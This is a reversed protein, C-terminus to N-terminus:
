RRPSRYNNSFEEKLVLFQHIRLEKWQLLRETELLSIHLIMHPIAKNICFITVLNIFKIKYTINLLRINTGWFILCLIVMNDVMYSWKKTYVWILSLLSELLHKCVLKIAANNMIAPLHFVVCLSFIAYFYHFIM